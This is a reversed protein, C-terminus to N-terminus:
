TTLSVVTFMIAVCRAAPSSTVSTSWYRACSIASAAARVSFIRLPTMFRQWDRSNNLM